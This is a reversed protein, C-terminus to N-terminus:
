YLSHPTIEIRQKLAHTALQQTTAGNGILTLVEDWIQSQAIENASYIHLIYGNENNIEFAQRICEGTPYTIEGHAEIEASVFKQLVQDISSESCTIYTQGDSDVNFSEVSLLNVISNIKDHNGPNRPTLIIEARITM